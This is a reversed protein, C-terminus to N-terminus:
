SRERLLRAVTEADGEDEAYIGTCDWEESKTNYEVVEWMNVDDAYDIDFM